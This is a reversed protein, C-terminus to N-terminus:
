ASEPGTWTRFFILAGVILLIVGSFSWWQLFTVFYAILFLGAGCLLSALIIWGTTAATTRNKVSHEGASAYEEM